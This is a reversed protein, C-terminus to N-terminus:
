GYEALDTIVSKNGGCGSSSMMGVNPKDDVNFDHYNKDVPRYITSLTCTHSSHSNHAASRDWMGSLFMLIKLTKLCSSEQVISLPTCRKMQQGDDFAVLFSFAVWWRCCCFCNCELLQKWTKRCSFQPRYQSCQDCCNNKNRGKAENSSLEGGQLWLSSSGWGGVKIHDEHAAEWLENEWLKM